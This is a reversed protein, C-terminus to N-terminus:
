DELDELAVPQGTRSSERAADIIQAVTESNRASELRMEGDGACALLEAYVDTAPLDAVPVPMDSIEGSRNAVYFRQGCYSGETGALMWGTHLSAGCRLNVDILGEAGGRFLVCLLFAPATPDAAPTEAIRAFVSSPPRGVLQLLQDVYQFAFFGFTGEAAVTARPDPEGGAAGVGPVATGWSILRASQVTGVKLARVAYEAARYDAVGRRTPLVCLSRGARRAAALLAAGEDGNICMPPEVAVNKGSQLARIGIEARLPQPAANLVFDVDSRALLHDVTSCITGCLAHKREVTTSASEATEVDCAAVVKLDSRLSIQELHFSGIRGLGVVGIRLPLAMATTTM